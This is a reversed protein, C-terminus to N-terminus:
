RRLAPMLVTVLILLMGAVTPPPTLLLLHRHPSRPFVRSPHLHQRFVHSSAAHGTNVVEEPSGEIPVEIVLRVKDPKCLVGHKDTCSFYTHGKVTGNNKGLPKDLEVGCRLEDTHVKHFGFYRLVGLSKYGSVAVRKGIDDATANPGKKKKTKSQRQSSNREPVSATVPEPTKVSEAPVSSLATSPTSTLDAERQKKEQAVRNLTQGRM